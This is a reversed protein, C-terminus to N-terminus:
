GAGSICYPNNISKFFSISSTSASDELHAAAPADLFGRPLVPSSVRAAKM